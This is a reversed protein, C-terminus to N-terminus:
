GWFGRLWVFFSQEVATELVAEAFYYDSAMHFEYFLIVVRVPRACVRCVFDAIFQESPSRKITLEDFKQRVADDFPSPEPPTIAFVTYEGCHPCFYRPLNVMLNPYGYRKSNQVLNPLREKPVANVVKVARAAHPRILSENLVTEFLVFRKM